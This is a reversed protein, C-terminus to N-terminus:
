HRNKEAGSIWGGGLAGEWGHLAVGYAAEFPTKTVVYHWHGEKDRYEYGNATYYRYQRALMTGLLNSNTTQSTTTVETQVTTNNESAQLNFQKVISQAEQVQQATLGSNSPINLVMKGNIIQTYSNLQSLQAASFSGSTISVNSTSNITDALSTTPVVSMVISITILIVGLYHNKKM